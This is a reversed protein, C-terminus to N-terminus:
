PSALLSSNLSPLIAMIASNEIVWNGPDFIAQPIEVVEVAEM